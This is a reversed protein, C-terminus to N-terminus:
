CYNAPSLLTFHEPEPKQDQKNNSLISEPALRGPNLDQSQQKSAAHSQILWKVARHGLKKM